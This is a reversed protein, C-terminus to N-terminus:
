IKNEEQKDDLEFSYVRNTSTGEYKIPMFTGTSNEKV